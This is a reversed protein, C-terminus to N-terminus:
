RAADCPLSHTSLPVATIVATMVVPAASAELTDRMSDRALSFPSLGAQRHGSQLPLHGCKALIHVVEQSARLGYLRRAIERHSGPLQGPDLEGPVRDRIRM